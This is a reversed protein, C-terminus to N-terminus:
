SAAGELAQWAHAVDGCTAYWVNPFDRTFAIFERLTALRMPRGTVQPHMTLIFLDGWDYTERFEDRRISLM